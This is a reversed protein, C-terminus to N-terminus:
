DKYDRWRNPRVFDCDRFQGLIGCAFECSSQAADASWCGYAGLTGSITVVQTRRVTAGAWREPILDAPPTECQWAITRKGNEGYAEWSADRYDLKAGDDCRHNTWPPSGWTTGASCKVQIGDPPCDPSPGTNDVVTFYHLSALDTLSDWDTQSGAPLVLVLASLAALFYRM